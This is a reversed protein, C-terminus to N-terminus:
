PQAIVELVCRAIGNASQKMMPKVTVPTKLAQLVKITSTFGDRGAVAEADTLM